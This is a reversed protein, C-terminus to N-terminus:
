SSCSLMSCGVKNRAWDPRKAYWKEYQPQENYPTKLLEHLENIISYDAKNTYAIGMIYYASAAWRNGESISNALKLQQESLLIASDTNNNIYSFAIINIAKLRSTDSQSKNNYVSWLSDLQHNQAIAFRILLLFILILKYKM